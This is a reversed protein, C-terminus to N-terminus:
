KQNLIIKTLSKGLIDWHEKLYKEGKSSNNWFMFGPTKETEKMKKITEKIDDNFSILLSGGFILIEGDESKKTYILNAEPLDSLYNVKFYLQRTTM